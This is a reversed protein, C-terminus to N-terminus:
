RSSNKRHIAQKKSYDKEAAEFAWKLGLQPLKVEPRIKRCKRVAAEDRLVQEM